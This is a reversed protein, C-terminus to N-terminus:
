LRKSRRGPPPAAKQWAGGAGRPRRLEQGHAAQREYDGKELCLYPYILEIM